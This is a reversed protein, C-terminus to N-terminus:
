TKCELLSSTLNFKTKLKNNSIPSKIQLKINHSGEYRYEKVYKSWLVEGVLRTPKVHNQLTSSFNNNANFIM